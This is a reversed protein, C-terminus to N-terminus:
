ASAADSEVERGAERAATACALCPPADPTRMDLQSVDITRDCEEITRVAIQNGWMQREVVLHLEGDATRWEPPEYTSAFVTM